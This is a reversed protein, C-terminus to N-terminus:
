WRAAVHSAQQWAVEACWPISLLMLVACPRFCPSRAARAACMQALMGRQQLQALGSTAQSSSALSRRQEGSGIASNRTATATAMSPIRARFPAWAGRHLWRARAVCRRPRHCSLLPPPSRATFRRERKLGLTSCSHQLLAAGELLAALTSCGYLQLCRFAAEGM